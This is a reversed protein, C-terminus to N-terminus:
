LSLSYDVFTDRVYKDDYHDTALKAIEKVDEEANRM